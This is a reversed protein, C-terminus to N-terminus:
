WFKLIFLFGQNTIKSNLLGHYRVVMDIIVKALRLTDITIKVPKYYFMKTLWDVIVLIFNYSVKKWDISIPLGTIFDM